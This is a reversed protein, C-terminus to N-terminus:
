VDYQKILAVIDDANEENIKIAYNEENWIEAYEGCGVIVATGRGLGAHECLEVTLM